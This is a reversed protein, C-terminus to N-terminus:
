EEERFLRRIHPFDVPDLGADLLRADIDRPQRVYDIALLVLIIAIGWAALLFMSLISM